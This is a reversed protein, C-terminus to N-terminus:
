DNKDNKRQEESEMLEIIRARAECLQDAKSLKEKLEVIIRDKAALREEYDVSLAHLQKEHSSNERLENGRLIRFDEDMFLEAPDVNLLQVIKFFQKHVIETPGCEINFYTNVRIGLQDAMSKKSLGSKERLLKIKNRISEQDM